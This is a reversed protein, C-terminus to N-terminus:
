YYEEVSVVYTNGVTRTEPAGLDLRSAEQILFLAGTQYRM